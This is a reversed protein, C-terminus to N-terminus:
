FVIKWGSLTDRMWVFPPRRCQTCRLRLLLLLGPQQVAAPPQQMAPNSGCAVGCTVHWGAWAAVCGRLPPRGAAAAAAASRSVVPV